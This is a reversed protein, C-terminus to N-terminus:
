SEVIDAIVSINLSQVQDAFSAGSCVTNITRFGIINRMAYDVEVSAQGNGTKVLSGRNGSISHSVNVNSGGDHSVNATTDGGSLGTVECTFPESGTVSLTFEATDGNRVLNRNSNITVEPPVAGSTVTFSGRIENNNYDSEVFTPNRAIQEYNNNVILRYHHTGVAVDPINVTLVPSSDGVNITGNWSAAAVTTWPGSLDTRTMLIYPLIGSANANGINSIQFNIPVSGWTASEIDYNSEVGKHADVILDPASAAGVFFVWTNFAVENPHSYNNCYVEVISYENSNKSLQVWPTYAMVDNFTGQAAGNLICRKPGGTSGVAVRVHVPSDDPDAALNVPSHPNTTVQTGSGGGIRHQMSIVPPAISRYISIEKWNTWSGDFRQCKIGYTRSGGASPQLIEESYWQRSYTDPKGQPLNTGFGTYGGFGFGSVHCEKVHAVIISVETIAGTSSITQNTSVYDSSETTRLAFKIIEDNTPETKSVVDMYLYASAIKGGEYIGDIVIKHVGETNPATLTINNYKIIDGYSVGGSVKAVEEGSPIRYIDLLLNDKIHQHVTANAQIQHHIVVQEGPAYNSKNLNATYTVAHGNIEGMVTAAEASGGFLLSGSIAFFFVTAKTGINRNRVVLLIAFLITLITAAFLLYVTLNNKVPQMEAVVDPRPDLIKREDLIDGDANVLQVIIQPTLCDVNTVMAFEVTLSDLPVSERLLCQQGYADTVSVNAFVPETNGNGSWILKANLTEGANYSTKDLSFDLITALSGEVVYPLVVNNSLRENAASLNLLLRYNQPASATRFNFTLDQEAGAALNVAENNVGSVNVTEGSALHRLYTTISPVLLQDAGTNNIVLCSVRLETGPSVNDTANVVEGAATSFNCSGPVIELVSNNSVTFSDTFATAVVMGGATAISFVIEYDGDSLYQLPFDLSYFNSAGANLSITETPLFVDAVKKEGEYEGWVEAVLRLNGVPTNGRNILRYQVSLFEPSQGVVRVDTLDIEAVVNLGEDAGAIDPVSTQAFTHAFPTFWFLLALACIYIRYMIIISNNIYNTIVVNYKRNSWM